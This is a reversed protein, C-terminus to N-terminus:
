TAACRGYQLSCTSNLMSSMGAMASVSLVSDNLVSVTTDTFFTDFFSVPDPLFCLCQSSVGASAYSLRPLWMTFTETNGSTIEQAVCSHCECSESGSPLSFAIWLRLVGHVGHSAACELCFTLKQPDSTCVLSVLANTDTCCSCLVTVWSQLCSPVDAAASYCTAPFVKRQTSAFADIEAIPQKITVDMSGPSIADVLLLAAIDTGISELLLINSAAMGTATWQWRPVILIWWNFTAISATGICLIALGDNVVAVNVLIAETHASGLPTTAM